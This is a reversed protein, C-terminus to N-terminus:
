PGTRFSSEPIVHPMHAGSSPAADSASANEVVDPRHLAKYFAESAQTYNAHTERSSCPKYMDGFMDYYNPPYHSTSMLEVVYSAVNSLQM